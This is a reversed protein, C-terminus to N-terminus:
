IIFYIHIQATQTECRNQHLQLHKPILHLNTHLLQVNMAAQQGM